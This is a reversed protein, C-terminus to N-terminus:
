ELELAPSRNGSGVIEYNITRILRVRFFDIFHQVSFCLFCPHVLVNIPHVLVNILPTIYTTQM